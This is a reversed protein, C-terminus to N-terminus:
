WIFDLVARSGDKVSLGREVFGAEESDEGGIGWLVWKRVMM